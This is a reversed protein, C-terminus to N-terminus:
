RREGKELEFTLEMEGGNPTARWRAIQDGLLKWVRALEEETVERPEPLGHAACYTRTSTNCQASSLPERAGRQVDFCGVIAEVVAAEPPLPGRPWPTGFDDLDWGEAILGFFGHRFGLTSEVAFHTLDHTVFFEATPGARKQWTSTGDPRCLELVVAGDARRVFRIRFATTM